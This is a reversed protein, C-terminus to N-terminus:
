NLTHKPARFRTQGYEDAGGLLVVVGKEPLGSVRSGIIPPIERGERGCAMFWRSGPAAGPPAKIAETVWLEEQEGDFYTVIVRVESPPRWGKPLRLAIM